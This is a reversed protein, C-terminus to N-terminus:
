QENEEKYGMSEAIKLMIIERKNYFDQLKPLPWGGFHGESDYVDINVYTISQSTDREVVIEYDDVEYIGSALKMFYGSINSIINEKKSYESEQEIKEKDKKDNIWEIINDINM